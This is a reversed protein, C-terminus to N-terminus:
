QELAVTPIGSKEKGQKTNVAKELADIRAAIVALKENAAKLAAIQAGQEAITAKEQEEVGTLRKTENRLDSNENELTQVKKALEQTASVNLMSIADYDVAKLDTCEKGYVFIKDGLPEKTQVTFSKDNVVHAVANLEPDKPTILRVTDGDKLDHAKALSITYVGPKEMKVSEPVSYIDPTFTFGRVGNSSVATPYVKEVQQAIVKKFRKNGFRVVDKM